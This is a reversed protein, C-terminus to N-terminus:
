GEKGQLHSEPHTVVASHPEPWNVVTKMQLLTNRKDRLETLNLQKPEIGVAWIEPKGKERHCHLSM